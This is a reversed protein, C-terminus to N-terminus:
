HRLSMLSLPKKGQRINCMEQKGWCYMTQGEESMELKTSIYNHGILPFDTRVSVPATRQFAKPFHIITNEHDPHLFSAAQSSAWQSPGPEFLQGFENFDMM